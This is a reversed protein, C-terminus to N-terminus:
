ALVMATIFIGLTGMSLFALLIALVFRVKTRPVLSGPARWRVISYVVAAPAVLMGLWGLVLPTLALLLAINDHMIRRSQFRTLENDNRNSQICGPCIHQNHIVVDCLSCLLRGCQSCIETARKDDHYFCNADEQPIAADAKSGSDPGKFFAPFVHAVVPSWCSDCALPAGTLNCVTWPLPKRCTACLLPQSIATTM